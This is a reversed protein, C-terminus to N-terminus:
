DLHVLTITCALFGNDSCNYISTVQNIVTTSSYVCARVVGGGIDASVGQGVVLGVSPFGVNLLNFGAPSSLQGDTIRITGSTLSANACTSTLNYSQTLTPLDKKYSTAVSISAFAILLLASKMFDSM